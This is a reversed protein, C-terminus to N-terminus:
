FFLDVLPDLPDMAENENNALCVNHSKDGCTAQAMCLTAPFIRSDSGVLERERLSNHASFHSRCSAACGLHQERVHVQEAGPTKQVRKRIVVKEATGTIVKGNQAERRPKRKGRRTRKRKPRHDSCGMLQQAQVVTEQTTSICKVIECTEITAKVESPDADVGASIRHCEKPKRKGRRTRKRKIVGNYQGLPRLSQEAVDKGPCEVSVTKQGFPVTQVVQPDLLYSSGRSEEIVKAKQRYLAKDTEQRVNLRQLCSQSEDTVTGPKKHGASATGTSNDQFDVQPAENRILLLVSGNKKNLYGGTNGDVPRCTIEDILPITNEDFLRSTSEDFLQTDNNSSLECNRGDFNERVQQPTIPTESRDIKLVDTEEIAEISKMRSFISSSASCRDDNSGVRELIMTPAYVQLSTTERKSDSMLGLVNARGDTDGLHMFELSQRDYHILSAREELYLFMDDTMAELECKASQPLLSAQQQVIIQRGPSSFTTEVFDTQGNTTAYIIEALLKISNDDTEFTWDTETSKAVNPVNKRRMRVRARDLLSKFSAQHAIKSLFRRIKRKVGIKHQRNKLDAIPSLPGQGLYRVPSGTLLVLLQLHLLTKTRTGLIATNAVLITLAAAKSVITEKLRDAASLFQTPAKRRYNSM